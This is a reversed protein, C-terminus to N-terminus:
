RREPLGLRRRPAPANGDPARRMRASRGTTGCTPTDPVGDAIVSSSEYAIGDGVANVAAIMSYTGNENVARAFTDANAGLKALLRLM